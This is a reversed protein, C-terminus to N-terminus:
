SLESIIQEMTELGAQIKAQDNFSKEDYKHKKLWKEIKSRLKEIKEPDIKSSKVVEPVKIVKEKIVVKEIEKFGSIDSNYTQGKDNHMLVYGNTAWLQALTVNHERAARGHAQASFATEKGLIMLTEPDIKDIVMFPVALLVKEKRKKAELAIKATETLYNAIDASLELTAHQATIEAAKNFVQRPNLSKSKLKPKM